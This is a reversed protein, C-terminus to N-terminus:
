DIFAKLQCVTLKEALMVRQPFKSQVSVIQVVLYNKFLKIGPFKNMKFLTNSLRTTVIFTPM